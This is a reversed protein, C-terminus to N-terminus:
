ARKMRKAIMEAGILQMPVGVGPQTYHGTYYLNELKRSKHSPRFFATQLLTHALGLSAGRHINNEKIFDRQSYIRKTEIYPHIEDEILSELHTICADAYRERLEDSDDLGAAVPVLLFVTEGGPPCVTDDTKSPVGIYYSANALWRPSDFIAEFNTKWDDAFYFNHHVLTKLKKRLGLFVIFTSPAMVRSKWYRKSYSAYGGDLLETETYHYDASSLVIDAPVFDANTKVGTAAGGNVCIKTATEGFRFVAGQQEAVSRIAEVMSGMGGAPYYVGGSLDAHSMLSYLAPTKYPSSGLFVTNFGLVKRAEPSTFYRGIFSDLKQLINLKLGDRILHFSMLDFLSSFENYLFDQLTISYKKASNKLYKELSAGGGPEFSDFVKRNKEMDRHLQASPKNEFFVQYSPALEKLQYFDSVKKGFLGFYRDFVEPMLYWSPGMDFQYGSDRFIRAVGGPSKQKEIVTVDYGEKALLAASALGSLGGGIVVLKEAM